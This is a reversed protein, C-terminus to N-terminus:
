EPPQKNLVFRLFKENAKLEAYREENFGAHETLDTEGCIPCRWLTHTMFSTSGERAKIPVPSPLLEAIVRCHQCVPPGLGM